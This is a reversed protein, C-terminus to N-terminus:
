ASWETMAGQACGRSSRRLPRARFTKRDVPQRATKGVERNRRGCARRPQWIALSDHGDKVIAYAGKAFPLTIGAGDIAASM